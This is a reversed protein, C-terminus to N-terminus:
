RVTESAMYFAFAIPWAALAAVFAFLMMEIRYERKEAAEFSQTLAWLNLTARPATTATGFSASHGRMVPASSHLSWDTALSKSNQLGTARADSLRSTQSIQSTPKM